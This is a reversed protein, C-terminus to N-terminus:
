FNAINNDLNSNNTNVKVSNSGSGQTINNQTLIVREAQGGSDNELFVANGSNFYTGSGEINMMCGSILCDNCGIVRLKGDVANDQSKFSMFCNTLRFNPTSYIRIARHGDRLRSCKLNSLQTRRLSETGETGIQFCACSPQDTGLPRLIQVNDITLDNSTSDPSIQVIGDTPNSMGNHWSQGNAIQIENSTKHYYIDRGQVSDFYYNSLSVKRSNEVEFAINQCTHITLDSVAINESTNTIYIGLNVKDCRIASLTINTVGSLVIPKGNNQGTMRMNRVSGDTVASFRVGITDSANETITIDDVDINQVDNSGQNKHAHVCRTVPTTLLVGSVRCNQEGDLEIAGDGSSTGLNKFFLTAFRNFSGDISQIGRTTGIIHVGNFDIRQCGELKIGRVVDQVRIDRFSSGNTLNSLYIGRVDLNKMSITSVDLRGSQDAHLGYSIENGDSINGDVNGDTDLGEIKTDIAYQNIKVVATDRSDYYYSKDHQYIGINRITNDKALSGSEGSVLVPYKITGTQQSDYGCNILYADEFSCHHCENLNIVNGQCETVTVNAVQHYESDEDAGSQSGDVYIVKDGIKRAQINTVLNRKGQIWIGTNRCGAIFVDSVQINRGKIRIGLNPNPYDDNSMDTDEDENVHVDRIIPAYKNSGEINIGSGIQNAVFFSVQANQAFFLHSFACKYTGEISMGIIGNFCETDFVSSEHAQVINICANTHSIGHIGDVTMGSVVMSSHDGM